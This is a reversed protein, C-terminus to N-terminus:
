FVIVVCSKSTLFCIKDMHLVYIHKSEELNGGSPIGAENHYWGRFLRFCLKQLTSMQPNFLCEKCFVVPM